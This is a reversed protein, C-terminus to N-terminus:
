QFNVNVNHISKASFHRDSPSNVVRPQASPPPKTEKHAPRTTLTSDSNTLAPARYLTRPRYFECLPPPPSPNPLIQNPSPPSRQSPQTSTITSHHPLPPSPTLVPHSPLASQLLDFLPTLFDICFDGIRFTDLSSDPTLSRSNDLHLDHTVNLPFASYCPTQPSKKASFRHHISLDQSKDIGSHHHFSPVKVRKWRGNPSRQQGDQRHKAM